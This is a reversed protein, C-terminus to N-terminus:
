SNGTLFEKAILKDTELLVSSIYEVQDDTFDHHCGILFMEESIL